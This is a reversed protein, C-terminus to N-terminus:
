IRHLTRGNGHPYINKKESKYYKKSLSKATVWEDQIDTIIVTLFENHAIHMDVHQGVYLKKRFQNLDWQFFLTIGIAIAIFAIIVINQTNM